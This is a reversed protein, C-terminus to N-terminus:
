TILILYYTKGPILEGTNKKRRNMTTIGTKKAAVITKEVEELILKINKCALLRNNIPKPICKLCYFFADYTEIKDLSFWYKHFVEL